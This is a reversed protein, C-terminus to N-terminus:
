SFNILFIDVLVNGDNKMKRATHRYRTSLVIGIDNTQCCDVALSNSLRKLTQAANEDLLDLQLDNDEFNKPGGPWEKKDDVDFEGSKFRQFM